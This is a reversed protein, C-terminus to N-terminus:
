SKMCQIGQASVDCLVGPKRVPVGAGVCVRVGARAYLSGCCFGCVGSHLLM